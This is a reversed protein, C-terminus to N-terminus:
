NGSLLKGVVIFTLVGLGIAVFLLCTLLFSTLM